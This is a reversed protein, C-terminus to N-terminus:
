RRSGPLSRVKSQFSISLGKTSVDRASVDIQDDALHVMRLRPLGGGVDCQKAEDRRCPDAVDEM